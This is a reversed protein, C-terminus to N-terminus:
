QAFNVITMRGVRRADSAEIAYFYVGSAVIQNNRNRVDWDLTGGFTNSNHELVRVLVGSTSYIRVIAKQPLNVFKIVKNTPSVEYGNTVYYPDPVTHVRDLDAETAAVVQNTVTYAAKVSAGVATLPSKVEFFSYAGQNGAGGGQGGRVAGTYTRLTWVSGAAPLDGNTSGAPFEFMFLHGAIYMGVGPGAAVPSTLAAVPHGGAYAGSFLSIPGLAATQSLPYAAGGCPIVGQVSGYSRYPELCGFDAVTLETRADYSTTNNANAQTLWGWTYGGTADTAFPVLVNHTYDVVSDVTGGAGWYVNYDAATAVGGGVGEINRWVNDQGQYSRPEYVIVNGTGASVQGANQYTTLVATGGGFGNVGNDRTPNPFTENATPTPGDFWRAGNYQCRSTFGTAGNVCGRGYSTTYYAGPYTLAWSAALHYANSGGYRQARNNDIPGGDLSGALNVPTNDVNQVVSLDLPTSGAPTTATFHYVNPAGDYASGVEMSNLTLSFEGSVTVVQKVFDGVFGMSAATAPRAPGSFIGTSSNISPSKPIVETMNVGRGFVGISVSGDNDYNSAPHTPIVSKTIRASELSSPGSQISNVDFATVAYFYRLNNKATKDVFTFPIDNGSLAPYGDSAAGTVATDATTIIATNDALLLRGGNKVQVFPTADLGIGGINYDEHASYAVGPGPTDFTVPCDDQVGLEPACGPTPNVVGLYDSFTTNP